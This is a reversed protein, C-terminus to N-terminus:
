KNSTKMNSAIGDSAAPISNPRHAVGAPSLRQEVAIRARSQNSPALPAPSVCARRTSWRSVDLGDIRCDAPVCRPVSDTVTTSGATTLSCTRLRSEGGEQDTQNPGLVRRTEVDLTTSDLPSSDVCRTRVDVMDFRRTEVYLLLTTTTSRAVRSADVVSTSCTLAVIRSAAIAPNEPAEPVRTSLFVNASYAM